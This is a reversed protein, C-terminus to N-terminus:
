WLRFAFCKYYCKPFLLVFSGVLINVLKKNISPTFKLLNKMNYLEMDFILINSLFYDHLIRIEGVMLGPIYYWLGDEAEGDVDDIKCVTVRCLDPTLKPM